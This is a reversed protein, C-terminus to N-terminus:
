KGEKKGVLDPHVCLPAEFRELICDKPFHYLVVPWGCNRCRGQGHVLGWEFTSGGMLQDVMSGLLKKDCKICRGEETPEAFQTLYSDMATKDSDSIEGDKITFVNDFTAHEATPNKM